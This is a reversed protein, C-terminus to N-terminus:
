DLYERLVSEIQSPPSGYGIIDLLRQEAGVVYLQSSHFPSYRAAADLSEYEAGDLPRERGQEDTVSHGFTTRLLDAIATM